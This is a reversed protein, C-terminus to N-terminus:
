SSRHKRLYLLVGQVNMEVEQRLIVPEYFEGLAQSELQVFYEKIAQPDSLERTKEIIAEVWKSLEAEYEDILKYPQAFAGYHTFYLWRLEMHRLRQLTSLSDEYHFAPPPTTMTFGTAEPRYIGVADGTFLGKTKREYFCAHHPAHGPADIAELVYGDGLEFCEGGKVSIVREEAVPKMTGYHSFLVGVARQVSPVLKSPNILHPTGLHHCIVKASPFAEALFGAGGAHDMHVHTPLLYAVDDPRIKLEDLAARTEELTHSFGTEIIAPKPTKLIYLAGYRQIELMRTDLIFLNRDAEVPEACRM